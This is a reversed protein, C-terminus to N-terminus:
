WWSLSDNDKADVDDDNNPFGRCKLLLLEEWGVEGYSGIKVCSGYDEGWAITSAVSVWKLSSFSTFSQRVFSFFIWWSLYLISISDSHAKEAGVFNYVRMRSMMMIRVGSTVCCCYSYSQERQETSKLIVKATKLSIYKSRCLHARDQFVTNRGCHLVVMM